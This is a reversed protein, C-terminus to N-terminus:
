NNFTIKHLILVVAAWIYPVAFMKAAALFGFNVAVWGFTLIHAAILVALMWKTSKSLNKM